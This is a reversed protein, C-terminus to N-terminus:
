LSESFIISVHHLRFKIVIAIGKLVGHIGDLGIGNNIM